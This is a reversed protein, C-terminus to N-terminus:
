PDILLLRIGEVVATGYFGLSMSFRGISAIWNVLSVTKKIGRVTSRWEEPVTKELNILPIVELKEFIKFPKKLRSLISSQTTLFVFEDLLVQQIPDSIYSEKLRGVLRYFDKRLEDPMRTEYEKWSFPLFFKQSRSLMDDIKLVRKRYSGYFDRFADSRIEQINRSFYIKPFLSKFRERSEWFEATSLLSPDIMVPKLKDTEKAM